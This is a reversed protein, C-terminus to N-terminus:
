KHYSSGSPNKMFYGEIQDRMITLGNNKGNLPLVHTKSLGGQAIIGNGAAAMANCTKSLSQEMSRSFAYFAKEQGPAPRVVHRGVHFLTTSREGMVFDQSFSIYSGQGKATISLMQQLPENLDMQGNKDLYLCTVSADEVGKQDLVTAKMSLINFDEGDEDPMSDFRVSLSGSDPSAEPQAAALPMAPIVLATSVAIPAIARSLFSM